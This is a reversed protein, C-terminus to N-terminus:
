FKEEMQKNNPNADPHYQKALRRYASRIEDAGATKSVGLVEYPNKM